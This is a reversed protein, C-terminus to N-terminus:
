YGEDLVVWDSNSYKRELAIARPPNESDKVKVTFTILNEKEHDASYQEYLSNTIDYEISEVIFSTEEYYSEAVKQANIIEEETFDVFDSATSKDSLSNAETPMSVEKQESVLNQDSLETEPYNNSNSKSCGIVSILYAFGMFMLLFRKM